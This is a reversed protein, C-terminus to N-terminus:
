ELKKNRCLVVSRWDWSCFKIVSGASARPFSPVEVMLEKESKANLFHFDSDDNYRITMTQLAKAKRLILKVWRIERPNGFFEHFCVSKLHLLSCGTTVIDPAWGDDSNGYNKDCEAADSVDENDHNNEFQFYDAYDHEHDYDGNDETDNTNEEVEKDGMFEFIALSELNPVAKLLAILGQDTTLVEAINLVKVNHFTLLNNLQRQVRYIAQLTLDYVTPCKVHALARFLRIIEACGNEESSFHIDAEVLALFSSFIFEKPVYGSYSLSVLRPADIKFVCDRLGNGEVNWTNFKLLKLTPISICLYSMSVNCRELILEELVPSNSFLEENWCEDSLKFHHLELRRLRPFSMYKPFHISPNTRLKLLILSECTFLSPPIFLPREQRLCLDLEKVKGM